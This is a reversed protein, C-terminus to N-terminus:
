VTAIIAIPIAVSATVLTGLAVGWKVQNMLHWRRLKRTKKRFLLGADALQSAKADLEELAEQRDLIMEINHVMISKVQEVQDQVQQIKTLSNAHEMERLLIPTMVDNMERLQDDSRASDTAAIEDQERVEGDMLQGDLMPCLLLALRETLVQARKPDFDGGFVVVFETCGGKDHVPLKISRWGDCNIDDWGPPAQRSLMKQGLKAAVDATGNGYAESLRVTEDSKICKRGVAAYVIRSETPQQKSSLLREGDKKTIRNMKERAKKGFSAM